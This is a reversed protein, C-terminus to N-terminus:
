QLSAMFFFFWFWEAKTSEFSFILLEWNRTVHFFNIESSILRYTQFRISIRMQHNENQEDDSSMESSFNKQRSFDNEDDNMM